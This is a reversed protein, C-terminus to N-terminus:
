PEILVAIRDAIAPLGPADLDDLDVSMAAHLWAAGQLWDPNTTRAATTLVALSTAVAPLEANADCWGGWASAIAAIATDDLVATAIPIESSRRELLPRLSLTHISPM